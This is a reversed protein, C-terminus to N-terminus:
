YISTHVCKLSVKHTDQAPDTKMGSSRKAQNAFFGETLVPPTLPREQRPKPPFMTFNLDFPDVEPIQSCVLYFWYILGCIVSKLKRISSSDSESM